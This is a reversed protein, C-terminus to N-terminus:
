VIEIIRKFRIMVKRIAFDITNHQADVYDAYTFVSNAWGVLKIKLPRGYEINM